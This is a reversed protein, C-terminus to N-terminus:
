KEIDRRKNLADIEAKMARMPTNILNPFSELPRFTESCDSAKCVITKSSNVTQCQPCKWDGIDKSDDVMDQLREDQLYLADLHLDTTSQVALAIKEYLNEKIKLVLTTGDLPVKPNMQAIKASESEIANTM